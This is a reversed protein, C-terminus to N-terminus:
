KRENNARAKKIRGALRKLKARKRLMVAYECDFLEMMQGLLVQVDAIEEAVHYIDDKGDLTHCIAVQLEAMEEFLKKVQHEVGFTELAVVFGGEVGVHSKGLGLPLSLELGLSLQEVHHAVLQGGLKLGLALSHESLEVLAVLRQFAVKKRREEWLSSRRFDKM